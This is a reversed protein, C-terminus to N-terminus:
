KLRFNCHNLRYLLNEMTNKDVLGLENLIVLLGKTGKTAIGNRLAMNRAPGEDIICFYPLSNAKLRLGLLLVQIEGNHLRPNRKGFSETEESLVDDDVEVKREEIAKELISFTRKHGDKIEEFVAM